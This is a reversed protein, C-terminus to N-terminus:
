MRQPRPGKRPDMVEHLHLEAHVKPKRELPRGRRHYATTPKRRVRRNFVASSAISSRQFPASGSPVLGSASLAQSTRFNAPTSFRWESVGAISGSEAAPCQMFHSAESEHVWGNPQGFIEGPKIPPLPDVRPRLRKKM